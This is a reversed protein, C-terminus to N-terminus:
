THRRNCLARNMLLGTFILGVVWTLSYILSVLYIPYSADYAHRQYEALHIIPNYWVFIAMVRPMTVLSDYVGSTIFVAWQVIKIFPVLAPIIIAISNAVLGYGFGLGAAMSFTALTLPLNPFRVDQGVMKLPVVVAVAFTFYLLFSWIVKAVRLHMRTVGPLQNVGNPWKAGEFTGSYAAIFTFYITFGGITFIAYQHGPVPRETLTFYFYHALCIAVPRLFEGIIGLPSQKEQVRLNRLILARIITLDDLTSEACTALADWLPSVARRHKAIDM